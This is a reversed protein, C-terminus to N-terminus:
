WRTERSLYGFLQLSAQVFIVFMADCDLQEDAALPKVISTWIGRNALGDTRGAEGAEERSAGAELLDLHGIEERANCSM